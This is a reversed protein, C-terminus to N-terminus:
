AVVEGARLMGCVRRHGALAQSETTYRWCDNDDGDADFVMTEFILLPGDGFSHDLGLWVTSVTVGDIVDQAVRYYDAPLSARDTESIARGDRDYYGPKM